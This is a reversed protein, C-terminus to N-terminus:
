SDTISYIEHSSDDPVPTYDKREQYNRHNAQNVPVPYGGQKKIIHFCFIINLNKSFDAKFHVLVQENKLNKWMKKM